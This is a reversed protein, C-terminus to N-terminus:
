AIIRIAKVPYNAAREQAAAPLALLLGLALFIKM